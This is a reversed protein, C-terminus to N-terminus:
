RGGGHEREHVLAGLRANWVSIHDSLAETLKVSSSGPRWPM